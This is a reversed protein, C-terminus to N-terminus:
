CLLCDPTIAATKSGRPDTQSQSRPEREESARTEAAQILSKKRADSFSVASVGRESLSQSPNETIESATNSGSAILTPTCPHSKTRNLPELKPDSTATITGENQEHESVVDENQEEKGDEGAAERPGTRGGPRGEGLGPSM